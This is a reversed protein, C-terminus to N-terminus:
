LKNMEAITVFLRLKKQCYANSFLTLHGRIEKFDPPM